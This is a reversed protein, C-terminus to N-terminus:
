VPPAHNSNPDGGFFILQELAELKKETTANANRLRAVIDEPISASGSQWRYQFLLSVAHQTEDAGVFGMGELEAVLGNVRALLDPTSAALEPCETGVRACCQAIFNQRQYTAFAAFQSHTIHLM